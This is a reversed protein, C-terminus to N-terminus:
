TRAQALRCSRLGRLRRLQCTVASLFPDNGELFVCRVREYLQIFTFPDDVLIRFIRAEEEKEEEEGEEEDEDHNNNGIFKPARSRHGGKEHRRM